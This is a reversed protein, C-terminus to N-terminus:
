KIEVGKLANNIGELTAESLKGYVCEAKLNLFQVKGYGRSGSGGLYDFQLLKMGKALLKINDIAESENEIDCIIQLDFECGRIVREIQRPNAIGNSRNISNEFKVETTSYVEIDILRELFDKNIFLDNFLLCGGNKTPGFLKKIQQDDDSAKTSSPCKEKVLLARIKGKLSSGPIMPLHDIVDRVVPSDAMGIASYSGGTGIHLGTVTKIIGKIVIKSFM